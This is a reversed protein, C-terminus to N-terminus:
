APVRGGEGGARGPVPTRQVLSIQDYNSDNDGIFVVANAASILDTSGSAIDNASLLYAIIDIYQQETLSAPAQPPMTQRLLDVLESVNRNAWNGQFNADNLAPAEFSGTLDPLHCAACSQIYLSQGSQAQSETYSAQQLQQGHLMPSFVVAILLLLRAQM